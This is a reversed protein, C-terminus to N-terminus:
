TQVAPHSVPLSHPYLHGIEFEGPSVRVIEVDGPFYAVMAEEGVVHPQVVSWAAQRYSRPHINKWSISM